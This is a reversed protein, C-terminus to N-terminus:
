LSVSRHALEQNAQRGESHEELPGTGAQNGASVLGKSSYGKGDQLEKDKWLGRRLVGKYDQM